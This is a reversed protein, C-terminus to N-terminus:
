DLVLCPAIFPHQPSGVAELLHQSPRGWPNAPSKVDAPPFPFHVQLTTLMNSHM